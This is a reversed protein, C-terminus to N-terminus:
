DSRGLSDVWRLPPVWEIFSNFSRWESLVTLAVLVAVAILKGVPPLVLAAGSGAVAGLLNSGSDGLMGRGGLDSPLWTTAAGAAAASVPLYPTSWGVAAVPIWWLLFVKVARGPRLDLLNLLNASLAVLLGDVVVWALASEWFGAAILALAGGALAKISGGTLRGEKIAALHGKFGREEGGAFLDDLLGLAFFGAVVILLGIRHQSIYTMGIAAPSVAGPQREFPTAALLAVVTFFAEAAVVSLLIAAGGVAPVDIGRFNAVLLPKPRARILGESVVASVGIGLAAMLAALVLM